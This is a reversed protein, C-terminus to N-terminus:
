GKIKVNNLYGSMQKLQSLVSADFVIEESSIKLGGLIDPNVKYNIFVKEEFMSSVVEEVKKKQEPLLMVASSVYVFRRNKYKAFTKFFINKIMNLIKFRKNVGVLRIFSSFVPCFSLYDGLTMWGKDLDKENLGSCTLIKKINENNKFFVDLKQFDKYIEDLRGSKKGENFLALAYRGPLSTQLVKLNNLDM